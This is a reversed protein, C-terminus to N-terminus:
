IPSYNVTFKITKGQADLLVLSDPVYHDFKTIISSLKPILSEIYISFLNVYKMLVADVDRLEMFLALGLDNETFANLSEYFQEIWQFVNFQGLVFYESLSDLIVDYFIHNLFNALGVKYTYNFINKDVVKEVVGLFVKLAEDKIKEIYLEKYFIFETSGINTM